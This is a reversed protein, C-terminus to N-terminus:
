SDPALPEPSPAPTQANLRRQLSDRLATLQRGLVTMEELVQEFVSLPIYGLRQAIELQTEVEALSSRAISIHRYFEKTHERTRGEAINAPVSVAARQLQGALGYIEHKPFTATLQYITEVLNMGEQWVRLDRYSTVQM